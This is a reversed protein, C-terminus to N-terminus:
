IGLIAMLDEYNKFRGLAPEKIEGAAGGEYGLCNLAGLGVSRVGCM